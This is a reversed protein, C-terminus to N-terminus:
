ERANPGGEDKPGQKEKPAEDKDQPGEAGDDDTDACVNDLELDIGSHSDAYISGRRYGITM